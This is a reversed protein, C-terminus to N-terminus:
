GVWTVDFIRIQERDDDVHVSLLGLGFPANGFARTM